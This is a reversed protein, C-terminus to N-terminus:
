VQLAVLVLVQVLAPVQGLEVVQVLLEVQEVQSQGLVQPFLLRLQYRV